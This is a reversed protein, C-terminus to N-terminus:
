NELKVMSWSPHNSSNTSLNEQIILTVTDNKAIEPGNNKVFDPAHITLTDGTVIPSTSTGYELVEMIHITFLNSKAKGPMEVEAIEGMIKAQGAPLGPGPPTPTPITDKKTTNIASTTDNNGHARSLKKPTSGCAYLLVLFVLFLYASSM